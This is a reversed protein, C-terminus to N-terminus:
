IFFSILFTRVALHVFFYLVDVTNFSCFFIIRGRRKKYCRIHFTLHVFSYFFTLLTFSLLVFYYSVYVPLLTFLRSPSLYVFSYLVNM